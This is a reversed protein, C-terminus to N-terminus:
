FCLKYLKDYKRIFTFEGGLTLVSFFTVLQFLILFIMPVLLRTIMKQKKGTKEASRNLNNKM